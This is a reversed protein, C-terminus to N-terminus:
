SFQGSANDDFADGDRWVAAIGVTRLMDALDQHPRQPLLVACSPAPNTLRRYDILQGVAMRVDNRRVTGKAELLNNRTKDWVDCNIHIDTGPIRYLLRVITSGKAGMWRKYAQVLTRERRTASREAQASIPYNEVNGAEVPVEVM